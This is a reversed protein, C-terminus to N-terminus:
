SVKFSKLRRRIRYDLLGGKLYGMIILEKNNSTDHVMKHHDECLSVLNSRINKHESSIFGDDNAESQFKIHHTDVARQECKPMQCKSLYVDDNYKSTTVATSEAYYKNRIYQADSIVEQPIMMAQAVEIGYQSPGAGNILKRHYIVEKDKCEITLHCQILNSLSTIEEMTSLQHLHSAFVFSSKKKCLHRITACVISIASYTETGHCVEDGLILTHEDSRKLIGRVESMEVTFSSLGKYLNDNGLIRTAISNYLSLRMKEAPVYFGAQALIVSIGLAKMVSSKGSSNIGYLLMGDHNLGLELSHPVYSTSTEIKEIIPHRMKAVQVFSKEQDVLTPKCYNNMKATKASSKYVDVLAIFSNISQMTKSMEKTLTELFENYIKNNLVSILEETTKIEESLEDIIQSTLKMKTKKEQKQFDHISEFRYTSSGLTVTFPKFAKNLLAYRTKTIDIFYTGDAYSSIKTTGPGKGIYKSLKDEIIKFIRNSSNIKEMLEDIKKNFGNKFISSTKYREKFSLNALHEIDIVNNITAILKQLNNQLDEEALGVFDFKNMTELIENTICYSKVLDVFDYARITSSHIKRTMTDMDITIFKLKKEIWEWWYISKTSKILDETNSFLQKELMKDVYSYRQNLVNLDNIPNLLRDKLLRKGMKTSTKTIINLVSSNKGSVSNNILNLQTIATNDLFLKNENSWHLPKELNKLFKKNHDNCFEIALVYASTAHPYHSLGNYDIASLIGTDKYVDRLVHEQYSVKLKKKDIEKIHYLKNYLDFLEVFNEKCQSDSNIHILVETPQYTQLFCM